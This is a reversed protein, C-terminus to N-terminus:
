FGLLHLHLHKIEQGAKEGINFQLRYGEVKFKQAMKTALIIMKGIIETELNELKEIHNKPVILLHLPAKPKIDHFVIFDDDQYETKANIEGRAIKCFICDM